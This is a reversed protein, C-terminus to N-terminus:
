LTESAPVSTLSSDLLTEDVDPSQPNMVTSNWFNTLRNNENACFSKFDHLVKFM